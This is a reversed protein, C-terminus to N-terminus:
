GASGASASSSSSIQLYAALRGAAAGVCPRNATPVRELAGACCAARPGALLLASAAPSHRGRNGFLGTQTVRSEPEAVPSGDHIGGPAFEAGAAGVARLRDLRAAVVTM